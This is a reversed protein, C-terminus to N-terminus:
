DSNAAACPRSGALAGRRAKARCAKSSVGPQLEDDRVIALRGDHTRSNGAPLTRRHALTVRPIARHIRNCGYCTYLAHCRQVRFVIRAATSLEWTSMCARNLKHVLIATSRYICACSVDEVCRDAAVLRPANALGIGHGVCTLM